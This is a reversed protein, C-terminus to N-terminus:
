PSGSPAHMPERRVSADTAGLIAVSAHLNAIGAWRPADPPDVVWFSLVDQHRVMSREFTGDALARDAVGVTVTYQAPTLAPHLLFRVTRLAGAPVPGIRAGLGHTTTMFIAQGRRDRIQFGVHADDIPAAFRVDIEVTMREHGGFVSAQTDRADLLRVAAIEVDPSAYSGTPKGPLSATAGLMTAQYLDIVPKPADDLVLGGGDLYLARACLRYISSLDHTVFIVTTGADRFEGIRAFCKQQFQIDGVALAEDVILVDPRLATAAAFALRVQMGSSYVRLPEEIYHGIDAFAEIAPMLTRVEAKSLGMLNGAMAANQRGTLEPHFGMGLELLAAVRGQVEVDGETARTTGAIIRLLTSKGAGNRGIIALSEGQAIDFSVGRLVWTSEARGLRGVSAFRLLKDLRTPYHRYAKGVGRVSIAPTM